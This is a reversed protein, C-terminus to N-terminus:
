HFNSSFIINWFKKQCNFKYDGGKQPLQFFLRGPRNNGFIRYIVFYNEASHVEFKGIKNKGQVSIIECYSVIFACGLFSVHLVWTTCYRRQM